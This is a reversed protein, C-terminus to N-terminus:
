TWVHNQKVSEDTQTHTHTHTYTNTRTQARTHTHTRAKLGTAISGTYVERVTPIRNNGATSGSHKDSEWGILYTQM